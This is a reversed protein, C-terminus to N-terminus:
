KKYKELDPFLEKPLPFGSNIFLGGFKRESKAIHFIDGFGMEVFQTGPPLVKLLEEEDTYLYIWERGYKDKGVLFPITRVKKDKKKVKRLKGRFPILFDVGFLFKGIKPIVKYYPVGDYKAMMAKLKMRKM